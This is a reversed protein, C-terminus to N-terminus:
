PNVLEVANLFARTRQPQPNANSYIVGVVHAHNGVLYARVVISEEQGGFRLERGSHGDLTIPRNNTLQFRDPPAIRDRVANLLKDPSQVQEPSLSTTYAILFRQDDSHTIIARFPIDGVATKLTVSEDSIIGPPLWFSIGAQQSIIFRWGRSQEPIAPLEAPPRQFRLRDESRLRGTEFFTAAEQGPSVVQSVL